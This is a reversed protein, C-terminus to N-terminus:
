RARRRRVIWMVLAGLMFVLAGSERHHGIACFGGGAEGGANRYAEFFDTVPKPSGCEIESLPGVNGLKDVTAVAVAYLQGNRLGTAEGETANATASGCRYKGPPNPQV